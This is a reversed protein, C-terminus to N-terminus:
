TRSKKKMRHKPYRQHILRMFCKASHLDTLNKLTWARPSFSQRHILLEKLEHIQKWFVGTQETLYPATSVPFRTGYIPHVERNLVYTPVDMSWAELLALGQSEKDSLYILYPARNLCQKFHEPSYAGYRIVKYPMELEELLKKTEELLAEPAFKMYILAQDRQPNKPAWRVENVGAPWVEIKYKLYPHLAVIGEKTIQSPALFLDIERQFPLINTIEINPGAIIFRKKRQRIVDKVIEIDGNIYVIDSIKYPLPDMEFDVQAKKLGRILSHM